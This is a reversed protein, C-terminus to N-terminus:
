AMSFLSIRLCILQYFYLFGKNEDNDMQFCNMNITQTSVHNVDKFTLLIFYNIVNKFTFSHFLNIFIFLSFSGILVVKQLFHTHNGM